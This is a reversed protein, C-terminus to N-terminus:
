IAEFPEDRPAPRRAGGMLVGEAAGVYRAQGGPDCQGCLVGRALQARPDRVRTEDATLGCERAAYLYNSAVFGDYTAEDLARSAADVRGLSFYAPDDSNLTVQLRLSAAAPHPGDAGAMLSRGLRGPSLSCHGDPARTRSRQRSDCHAQVGAEPRPHTEQTRRAKVGAELLPRVPCAGCFFRAKAILRVLTAGVRRQAPALLTAADATPTRRSRCASTPSRASPSRRARGPSGRSSPRTRSPAFGTTSGRSRSVRWGGHSATGCCPRRVRGEGAQLTDLAMAM